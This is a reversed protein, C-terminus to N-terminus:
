GRRLRGAFALMGFGGLAWLALSSPEPINQQAYMRAAFDMPVANTLLSWGGNYEWYDPYNQGVVPASYIDLGVTDVGTRMGQFEVTWTIESAPIYLLGGSGYPPQFDPASFVLTARLPEAGTPGFGGFWGSDFFPIAGPTPYGDWPPGGNVYFRVRAEVSGAFSTPSATNTGWYGFEFRAVEVAGSGACVARAQALHPCRARAAKSM